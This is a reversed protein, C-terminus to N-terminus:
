ALRGLAMKVRGLAKELLPRSCGFNLRVFGEGGKGFTGGDNFAVRAQKLFFEFPNELIGASRCDLWALYTGDPEAMKIGPLEDNVYNLLFNKNGELYEM